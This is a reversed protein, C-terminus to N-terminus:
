QRPTARERARLLAEVLRQLRRVSGGQWHAVILERDAQTLSRAWRADLGQQRAYDAVIAPLLADLDGIRPVPFALIRLRDRLPAPLPDVSNATAVYSVHSLDLNTQLAPDPYCAATEGELFGLLSDWFRGYDSRTGAKEAEDILILPNAVRARSIALFPHSPEASAWRRATGAFAAGDCQSADTRWVGVGLREGLRRAFRSKGGGPVGVLLTPRLRVTQRGVLDELIRDIVELAYPFEFALDKRIAAIDPTMALPVAHNIVHTHGVVIDTLKKSKVAHDDIACVRVFSAPPRMDRPEAEVDDSEDAEADRAAAGEEERRRDEDRRLVEDEIWELRSQAHMEAAQIALDGCAALAGSAVLAWGILSEELKARAQPSVLPGYEDIAAALTAAVKRHDAGFQPADPIGLLRVCDAFVKLAPQNDVGSRIDLAAALSGSLSKPDDVWAAGVDRFCPATAIIDALLRQRVKPWEMPSVLSYRLLRPLSELDGVAASGVIGDGSRAASNENASM